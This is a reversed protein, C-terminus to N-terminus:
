MLSRAFLREELALSNAFACGQERNCLVYICKCIFQVIVKSFHIIPVFIFWDLGSGLLCASSTMKLWFDFFIFRGGNNKLLMWTECDKYWFCKPIISSSCKVNQLSRFISADFILLVM